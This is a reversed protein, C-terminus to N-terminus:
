RLQWVFLHFHCYCREDKKWMFASLCIFLFRNCYESRWFKRHEFNELHPFVTSIIKRCPITDSIIFVKLILFINTSFYSLQSTEMRMKNYSISNISESRFRGRTLVGQWTGRWTISQTAFYTGSLYFGVQIAVSERNRTHSFARLDSRGNNSAAMPTPLQRDCDRYVKTFRTKLMKKMKEEKKWWALM